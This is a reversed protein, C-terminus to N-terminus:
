FPLQSDDVAGPSENASKRASSGSATTKASRSSGSSGSNHTRRRSRAGAKEELSAGGDDDDFPQTAPNGQADAGTLLEIRREARDLLGYCQKFLGIGEEYLELSQALGQQGDELQAVIQEVRALAEEFSAPQRTGSQERGQQSDSENM